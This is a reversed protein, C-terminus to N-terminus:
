AARRAVAEVAKNALTADIADAVNMRFLNEGNGRLAKVIDLVVDHGSKSSAHYSRILSIAGMAREVAQIDENTM